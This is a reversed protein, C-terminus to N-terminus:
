RQSRQWIAARWGAGAFSIAEGLDRKFGAVEGSLHAADLQRALRGKLREDLRESAEGEPPRLKRKRKRMTPPM